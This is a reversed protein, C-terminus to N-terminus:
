TGSILVASFFICKGLLHFIIRPKEAKCKLKSGEKVKVEREGCEAVKEWWGGGAAKAGV